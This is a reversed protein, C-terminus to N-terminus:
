LTARRSKEAFFQEVAANIEGTTIGPRVLVGALQHAKWCVLGSRRLCDIERQSRLNIM